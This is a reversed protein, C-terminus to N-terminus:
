EIIGHYVGMWYPLTYTTSSEMCYPLHHWNDLFYSSINYKHLSREDPAAVARDLTRVTVKESFVCELTRSDGICLEWDEPVVIRLKDEVPIFGSILSSIIISFSIIYSIIRNVMDDVENLLKIIYIM